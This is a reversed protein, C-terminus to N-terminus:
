KIYRSLICLHHLDCPTLRESGVNKRNWSLSELSSDGSTKAQAQKLFPDNLQFLVVFMPMIYDHCLCSTSGNEYMKLSAWNIIM